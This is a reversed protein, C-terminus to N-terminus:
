SRSGSGASSLRQLRETREGAEREEQLQTLGTEIGVNCQGILLVQVITSSAAALAVVTLKDASEVSVAVDDGSFLSSTCFVGVDCSGGGASGVLIIM